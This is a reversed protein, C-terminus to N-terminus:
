AKRWPTLSTPVILHAALVALGIAILNLSGLKVSFAALVFLVCAILALM